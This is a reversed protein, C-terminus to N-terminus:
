FLRYSPTAKAVTTSNQSHIFVNSLQSRNEGKCIQTYTFSHIKWKKENDYHSKINIFDAIM